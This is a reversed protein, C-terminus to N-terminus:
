SDNLRGIQRGKQQLPGLLDHNALNPSFGKIPVAHMQVPMTADKQPLNDVMVCTLTSSLVHCKIYINVLASYQM